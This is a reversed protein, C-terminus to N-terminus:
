DPGFKVESVKVQMEKGTEYPLQEGENGPQWVWRSKENDWLQPVMLHERPVQISVNKIQGLALTIGTECSQEVIRGRLLADKQPRFLLCGFM